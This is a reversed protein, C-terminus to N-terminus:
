KNRVILNVDGLRTDQIDDIAIIRYGRDRLEQYQLKGMVQLNRLADLGYRRVITEAYERGGGSWVVIRVNKWNQEALAVLLKMTSAHKKDGDILTGDVDFCIAIREMGNESYPLGLKKNTGGSMKNPSTTM